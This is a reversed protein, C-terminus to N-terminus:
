VRDLEDFIEKIIKEASDPIYLSKIEKQINKSLLDDIKEQLTELTLQNERIIHCLGKEELWKVNHYQHDSAAYPYPIFVAPKGAALIEYTSAAGSRSIVIDSASYLIGMRDYFDFYKINEPLNDPKKFNKGGILIFQLDKRKQALKIANESLVKSGQSGGFVLVTKKDPIGIIERAKEQPIKLDELLEQRLPLGTLITKKKPFYNKSIEFTIFIKKAFLSLLKNTYSPISNQEHLFLPVNSLAAALGLPLSSYGGFCLVFEPKEKKILSRIFLATKLLKLASKVANKPSRGRVGEIDFLYKESAPFDKKSEIGKKTGFYVIQYGYNILENAVSVAPYFHGGTGGGAIFVKKM